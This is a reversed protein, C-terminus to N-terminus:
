FTVESNEPVNQSTPYNTSYPIVKKVKSGQLIFKMFVLYIHLTIFGGGKNIYIYAVLYKM